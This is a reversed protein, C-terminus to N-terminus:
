SNLTLLQFNPTSIVHTSVPANHQLPAPRESDADDAHHLEQTALVPLEDEGVLDKSAPRADAGIERFGDVGTGPFVKEVFVRDGEFLARFREVPKIEEAVCAVESGVLVVGHSGVAFRDPAKQRCNGFCDRCGERSRRGFGFRFCAFRRRRGRGENDVIESM